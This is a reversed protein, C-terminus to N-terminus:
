VRVRKAIASLIGNVYKGSEETSFRKALEVAENIVVAVPVEPRDILEFIALRLINRDIAPMRAITWTHSFETILEDTEQRKSETGSALMTVLDDVSLIQTKIVEGVKINRTEAEYLFHVARERATSRNDDGVTNKRPSSM